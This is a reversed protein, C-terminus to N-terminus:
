NGQNGGGGRRGGGGRGGGLLFGGGGQLENLVALLEAGPAIEYKKIDTKVTDRNQAM